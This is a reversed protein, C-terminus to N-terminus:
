LCAEKGGEINLTRFESSQELSKAEIKAVRFLFFLVIYISKFRTPENRSLLM